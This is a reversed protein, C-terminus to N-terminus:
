EILESQIHSTQRPSKRAYDKVHNKFCERRHSANGGNPGVPYCLPINCHYCFYCTNKKCSACKRAMTYKKGTRGITMPYQAVWHKCGIADYFKAHIVGIDIDDDNSKTAEGGEGYKDDSERDLINSKTASYAGRAVGCTNGFRRLAEATCAIDRGM